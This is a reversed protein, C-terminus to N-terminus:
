KVKRLEDKLCNYWYIRDKQESEFMEQFHGARTNAEYLQSKLRTVEMELNKIEAILFDKESTGRKEEAELEDNVEKLMRQENLKVIESDEPAAYIIDYDYGKYGPVESCWHNDLFVRGFFPRKTVFEGGWGLIVYGKPLTARAEEPIPKNM